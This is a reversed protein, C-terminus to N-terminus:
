ALPPRDLQTPVHLPFLREALATRDAGTPRPETVPVVPIAFAASSCHEACVNCSSEVPKAPPADGHHAHGGAGHAPTAAQAAEGHHGTACFGITVSAVARLPLVAVLVLVALFKLARPMLIM